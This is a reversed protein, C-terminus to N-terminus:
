YHSTIPFVFNEIFLHKKHEPYVYLADDDFPDREVELKGGFDTDPVFFFSIEKTKTKILTPILEELKFPRISFVDYIKLDEEEFEMLVLCDRTESYYLSDEFQLIFHYTSLCSNPEFSLTKSLLRHDKAFRELLNKDERNQISLKRWDSSMAEFDTLDKLRFSSEDLRVFGFKPYFDLVEENAFLYIFEYQESFHSMVHKMLYRSLGQGRFAPHTMVASIQLVHHSQGQLVMVMPSLSVNAIVKNDQVIFFPIFTNDWYGMGYWPEYDGDLCIDYLENFSLFHQKLEELGSYVKRNTNM